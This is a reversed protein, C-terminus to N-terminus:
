MASQELARDAEAEMEAIEPMLFEELKAMWKFERDTMREPDDPFLGHSGSNWSVAVVGSGTFKVMVGGTGPRSGESQLVQIDIPVRMTKGHKNRIKRGFIRRAINRSARHIKTM